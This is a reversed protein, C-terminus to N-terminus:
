RGNGTTSYVVIPGPRSKLGPKIYYRHRENVVQMFNILMLIDTIGEKPWSLYKFFYVTRSQLRDINFLNMVMEIYDNQLTISKVTVTFGKLESYDSVSPVAPEDAGNLMVIVRTGTQWIMRWYNELTNDMPEQTVIFKRVREFGDLYNAHIYNSRKQKLCVRTTDWFEINEYRNKKINKLKKCKKCSGSIKINIITHH